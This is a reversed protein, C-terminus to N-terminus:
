KKKTNADQNRTAFRGGDGHRLKGTADPKNRTNEECIYENLRDNPAWEFRARATWPRSYTGPDDITYTNELIDFDVRSADAGDLLFHLGGEQRFASAGNISLM